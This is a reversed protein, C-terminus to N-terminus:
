SKFLTKIFSGITIFPANFKENFFIAFANYSCLYIIEDHSIVDGHEFPNEPNGGYNRPQLDVSVMDSTRFEMPGNGSKSNIGLSFKYCEDKNCGEELNMMYAYDNGGKQGLIRISKGSDFLEKQLELNRYIAAARKRHTLDSAYMEIM